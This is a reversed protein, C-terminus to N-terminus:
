PKQGFTLVYPYCELILFLLEAHSSTKQHLNQSHLYAHFFPIGHFGWVFFTFANGIDLFYMYMIMLFNALIEFFILLFEIFKCFFGVIWISIIFNEFFNFTHFFSKLYPLHFTNKMVDSHFICLSFQQNLYIMAFDGISTCNESTPFLYFLREM